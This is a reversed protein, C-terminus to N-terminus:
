IRSWRSIIVLLIFLVLIVAASNCAPRPYCYDEQVAHVNVYNISVNGPFPNNPMPAASIPAVANPMPMSMPMMAAPANNMIPKQMYEM